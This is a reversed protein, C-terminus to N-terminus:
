RVDFKGSVASTPDASLAYAYPWNRMFAANGPAFAAM